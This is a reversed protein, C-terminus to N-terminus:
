FSTNKFFFCQASRHNKRRNAFRDEQTYDWVQARSEIQRVTRCDTPGAMRNRQLAARGDRRGVGGNDRAPQHNRNRCHEQRQHRAHNDSRSSQHRRRGFKTQTTSWGDRNQFFRHSNVNRQPAHSERETSCMARCSSTGEDLALIYQEM